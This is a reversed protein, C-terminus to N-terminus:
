TPSGEGVVRLVPRCPTLGTWVFRRAECVLIAPSVCPGDEDGALADETAMVSLAHVEGAGLDDRELAWTGVPLEMRRGSTDDDVSGVFGAREMREGLARYLGHGYTVGGLEIRVLFMAM